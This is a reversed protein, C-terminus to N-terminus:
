KITTLTQAALQKQRLEKQFRVHSSEEQVWELYASKQCDALLCQRITPEDFVRARKRDKMLNILTGKLNPAEKSYIAEILREQRSILEFM